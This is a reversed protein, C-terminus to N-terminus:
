YVPGFAKYGKVTVGNGIVVAYKSGKYKVMSIEVDKRTKPVYTAPNM